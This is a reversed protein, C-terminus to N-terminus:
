TAFTLFYRSIPQSNQTKREANRTQLETQNQTEPKNLAYLINFITILTAKLLKKPEPKKTSFFSWVSLLTQKPREERAFGQEM